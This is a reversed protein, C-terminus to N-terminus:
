IKQPTAATANPIQSEMEEEQQLLRDFADPQALQRELERWAVDEPDTDIRQSHPAM